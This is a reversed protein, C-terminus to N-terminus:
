EHNDIVTKVETDSKEVVIDENEVAGTEWNDKDKNEVPVEKNKEVSTVKEDKNEKSIDRGTDEKNESDEETEAAPVKIRDSERDDVIKEKKGGNAEVKQEDTKVKQGSEEEDDETSCIFSYM